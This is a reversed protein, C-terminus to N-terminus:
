AFSFQIIYHRTQKTKQNACDNITEGNHRGVGVSRCQNNYAHEHELGDRFHIKGVVALEPYLGNCPRYTASLAASLCSFKFLTHASKKSVAALFTSLDPFYSFLFQCNMMHIIPFISTARIFYDGKKYRNTGSGTM